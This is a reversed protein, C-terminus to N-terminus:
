NSDTKDPLFLLPNKNDIAIKLGYSGDNENMICEFEDSVAERWESDNAVNQVKKELKELAAAFDTGHVAPLWSGEDNFYFELQSSEIDGGDKIERIEYIHNIVPGIIIWVGSGYRERWSLLDWNYEHILKNITEM